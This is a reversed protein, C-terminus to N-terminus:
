YLAGLQAVLRDRLALLESLRDLAQEGGGTQKLAILEAALRHIDLHLTDVEHAVGAEALLARGGHDLWHGFRCAHADQPPPTNAEGALYSATAAIWARHELSAFLIPLRARGITEASAWAAPVTWSACWREVEEAPMPYAIAYGQGLECGLRLLMEGHAHTEVGEAITQRRFAAALGLVGELIALDDPDDLMDRVFSRDIKLVAAPLQKLYTLSSYGTGFDDLAFNVGLQRCARIVRTAQAIDQLASTELVELELDGAAVTPHTQLRQQLREVFDPQKIQFADVNVSIPLHVGATKWHEIQKLATELVWEGLEITLPNGTAWPLFAAPPLLGRVPHRWRILAEVGIITGTRMNVKPQYFLTFEEGHLAQRIREQNEHHGRVRRDLEFDFIHYRNRGMQKAQYMAQDAQRLLQDADVTDTQPFFTVGLSASVQLANGDLEFSDSAAALLRCLLPGSSAVDALDLLVAVFEDGGIRALTDGERLAARMHVSLAILLQDGKDHGHRDNVAKFGDLDLYAVALVTHHRLAQAMGQHLRDALLVRNPLGTLNDFHAAHELQDRYAQRETIDHGIGLVGILRGDRTSIPAKTTELLVRRKDSAYTIWEENRTPKGAAIAARDHERFFEALEAPVFDFDTKGVIDAETAGFFKEFEANCALYRGDVDKLWILDPITSLLTRLQTHESELAQKADREQAAAAEQTRKLTEQDLIQQEHNRFMMCLLMTALPYLLLLVWWAQEIFAYGARNPLQTFVALQMLQVVVGLALYDGLRPPNARRAWWQRAAVGLAASLIIVMVGVTAGSGGLQYRYVGAILAAVAATVGGGVVGAVSLVISRGDFIVGPTFAVPNTMGLLAIGGFLLGLVVQRRLADRRFRAVVIQGAVVLAILFAINNTLSIFM